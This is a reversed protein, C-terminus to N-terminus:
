LRDMPGQLEQLLQGVVAVVAQPTAKRGKRIGVVQVVLVVSLLLVVRAWQGLTPIEM